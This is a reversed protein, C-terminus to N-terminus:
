VVITGSAPGFDIALGDTLTAATGPPVIGETGDATRITWSASGLNRLGWISPDAPHRAVEAVPEAFDYDRRLHHAYLRTDHNLVIPHRGFELRPPLLIVEGCSWCVFETREIDYFNQRGCRHCYMITDRLRAMAARWVSERVRGNEPDDIGVTFAQVFLDRLFQPYLPWFILANDHEGPVPANTDDDPDFIFRPHNGFVEIMASEDWCTYDLAHRGELPHHVMLVYFLLVALSWLDTNRSPVAANRVIEPAMFYPTGRVASTSAGDVGVNDNDCILVHGTAPEVFVNGFSIDRYCLGDNHLLLFGHALELGITALERFSVDVAGRVLTSLGVHSAPRLEMAYGFGDIRHDGGPGALSLPWLFRDHPAGREILATLAAQQALTASRPLYWKLALTRNGAVPRLEYVAGQGGQGLLPGVVGTTRLTPLTVVDGPVPLAAPIPEAPQAIPAPQVDSSPPDNSNARSRARPRAPRFM